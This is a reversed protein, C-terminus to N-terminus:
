FRKNWREVFTIIIHSVLCKWRHSRWIIPRKPRRARQKQSLKRGLSGFKVMMSKEMGVETLSSFGLAVKL